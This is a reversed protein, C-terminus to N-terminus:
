LILGESGWFWFFILCALQVGLGAILPTIPGRCTPAWFFGLFCCAHPWKYLPGMVGLFYGFKRHGVKHTNMWKKNWTWSISGLQPLIKTYCGSHGLKRSGRSREQRLDQDFGPPLSTLLWFVRGSVFLDGRLFITPLRTQNQFPGKVPSKLPSIRRYIYMYYSDWEMRYVSQKILNIIIELRYGIVYLSISNNTTLGQIVESCGGDTEDDQHKLLDM